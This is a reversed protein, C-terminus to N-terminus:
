PVPKLRRERERERSRATDRSLGVYWEKVIHVDKTKGKISSPYIGWYRSIASTKVRRERERQM